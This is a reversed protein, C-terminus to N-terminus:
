VGTVDVAEDDTSAGGCIIRGVASAAFRITQSALAATADTAGEGPVAAATNGAVPSGAVSALTAAAAAASRVSRDAVGRPNSSLWAVM